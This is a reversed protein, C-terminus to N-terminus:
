EIPIIFREIFERVCGEGGRSKLVTGALKRILTVADSPCATHGARAMVARDNVDDGIYAIEDWGIGLEKRWGELIRIKEDFGAYVFAVHSNSLTPQRLLRTGQAYSDLGSYFIFLWLGFTKLLSKM